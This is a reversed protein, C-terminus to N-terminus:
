YTGDMVGKIYNKLSVNTSGIKIYVNGIFVSDLAVEMANSEAIKGIGLGQGGARFDLLVGITSVFSEESASKSLSDTVTVKFNYSSTEDLNSLTVNTNKAIAGYSTWSSATSKKYYLVATAANNGNVSSISWNAKVIMNTSVSESRQATFSTVSPESYAYFTIASSVVASSTRGRSDTATVTFTKSGSSTIIAGTYSLSTGSQTTSYGGTIKFSSITSGYSGSATAVVKVKSYGAVAVGWGNITTNSNVISATVTDVTPVVTSPVTVKFTKSATSGIKTGSSNYSELQVTMTGTTASPLQNAVSLPITFDVYTYASTTSPTIFSTWGSDYSGLTFKVKYKFSSSAPTWKVNCANGLTVDGASTIGSARPITFLTISKNGDVAWGNDYNGSTTFFNFGTFRYGTLNINISKTGDDNHAIGNLNCTANSITYWTNQSGIYVSGTSIRSDMTYVLTGNIYICGDPYYTVGYYNRSRAEISTISINSTNNNIDYTESWTVRVDYNGSKNTSTWTLTGSNGTAM